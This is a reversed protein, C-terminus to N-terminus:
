RRRHKSFNLISTSSGKQPIMLSHKLTPVIGSEFGQKMDHLVIQKPNGDLAHALADIHLENYSEGKGGNGSVQPLVSSALCLVQSSPERERKVPSIVIPHSAEGLPGQLTRIIPQPTSVEPRSARLPIQQADVQSPWDQGLRGFTGSQPDQATFRGYSGLRRRIEWAHDDLGKPRHMYVADGDMHGM